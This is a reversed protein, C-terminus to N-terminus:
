KQGVKTSKIKRSNCVTFDRKNHGEGLYLCMIFEFSFIRGYLCGGEPLGMLKKRTYFIDTRFVLHAM